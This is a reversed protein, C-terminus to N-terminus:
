YHLTMDVIVAVFWVFAVATAVLYAGMKLKEKDM